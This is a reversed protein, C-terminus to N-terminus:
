AREVRNHNHKFIQQREIATSAIVGQYQTAFGNKLAEIQREIFRLQAVDADTSMPKITPQRDTGNSWEVWMPPNAIRHPLRHQAMKRYEIELATTPWPGAVLKRVPM